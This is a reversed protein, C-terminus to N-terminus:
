RLIQFLIWSSGMFGDEGGAVQPPREIGGPELALRARCELCRQALM